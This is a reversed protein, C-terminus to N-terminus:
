CWRHCAICYAYLEGSWKEMTIWPNERCVATWAATVKSPDQKQVHWPLQLYDAADQADM